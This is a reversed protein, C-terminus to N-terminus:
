SKSKAEGSRQFLPLGEETSRPQHSLGKQSRDPKRVLRPRYRLFIEHFAQRTKDHWYARSRKPRRPAQREFEFRSILDIVSRAFVWGRNRPWEEDQWWYSFHAGELDDMDRRIQPSSFTRVSLHHAFSNRIRRIRNLEDMIEKGYLRLAYGLQIKDSFSYLVAGDRDFLEQHERSSLGRFRSMIMLALENELMGGGLIAATRDDSDNLYDFLSLRRKETLPLHRRRKGRKKKGKRVFRPNAAVAAPKPPRPEKKAM